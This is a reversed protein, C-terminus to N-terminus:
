GRAAAASPVALVAGRWRRSSPYPVAGLAAIGLGFLVLATPVLLKWHRGVRADLGEVAFTAVGFFFLLRLLRAPAAAAPDRVVLRPRPRGGDVHWDRVPARVLGGRAM